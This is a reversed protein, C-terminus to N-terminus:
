SKSDDARGVLSNLLREINVLRELRTEVEGLRCNAEDLRKDVNRNVADFRATVLEEIRKEVEGWQLKCSDGQTRAGADSDGSPPTESGTIRVLPHMITHAYPSSKEAEAEARYRKIYDWPLLENVATECPDCVWTNSCTVCYWCPANVHKQCVACNFPEGDHVTEECPPVAISLSHSTNSSSASSFSASQEPSVGVTDMLPLNVLAAPKGGVVRQPALSPGVAPTVVAAAVKMAVGEEIKVESDAGDPSAPLPVALSLDPKSRDKYVDRAYQFSDGAEQKISFYDKLLLLDRFRVMLHTKPNHSVDTRHPVEAAICELESCADITREYGEQIWLQLVLVYKLCDFTVIDNFLERNSIALERTGYWDFLKFLETMEEFSFTYLMQSYEAKEAEDLLGRTRNFRHTLRFVRRVNTMRTCLYPLPPKKRKIDDVVVKIAFAWLEKPKLERVLPRACMIASEPVKKILFDGNAIARTFTGTMIERDPFYTGTYHIWTGDDTFAREFSVTFTNAKKVASSLTGLLTFDSGDVSTGDGSFETETESETVRNGCKFNICTMAMFPKQNETWHFGYWKGTISMEAELPNKLTPSPESIAAHDTTPAKVTPVPSVRGSPAGEVTEQAAAATSAQGAAASEEPTACAKEPEGHVLIGKLSSPDLKYIVDSSKWVLVDNEMFYQPKVWNEWKYYNKFLGCSLWEFILKLDAVEQHQFQERLDVFRLWAADAVWTVTDMDDWLEDRHLEQTLAIHMKAVHRRLLIALLMFISAEIRDGHLILAVTALADIDYQIKELREKLMSEQAQIYVAFKEELWTEPGDYREISSTLATVHQWCGEIYENVYRTNGPMTISWDTPRAQSFANIESITTFGSSNPDLAQELYRLRKVQLYSTMWSDPLPVTIDAEPDSDEDEDEDHDKRVTPVKSTPRKRQSIETSPPAVLLKSHEVREVLYDRLALVLLRTKASGKWGQDKWVHYIIRHKIRNHPGGKLYNMVRDGQHKIKNGLDKGLDELGMEFRKSYSDLNEQIVSRVDERYEKRLNAILNDNKKREDDFASPLRGARDHSVAVVTTAELSNQFKIMDICKKSDQMVVDGGGNREIWRGMEREQPTLMTRFLHMMTKMDDHIEQITVASRLSLAFTLEERRHTFRAAYSGLEENWIKAKLFKIGLSRKEQVTVANYCEEIDKKMNQCIAALRSLVPEGDPTTRNDDKGLNKLELLVMMVDKIKEFLTNRKKDNDKRETEQDYILKFPLYAAKLFPHVDTLVELTSMLAPVGELITNGIAKVTDNAMVNEYMGVIGESIAKSGVVADAADDIKDLIKEAKSPNTSRNEINKWMEGANDPLEYGAPSVQPSSPTPPLLKTDYGNSDPISVNLQSAAPFKGEISTSKNQPLSLHPMSASHRLETIPVTLSLQSIDSPGAARTSPEDDVAGTTRNRKFIRSFSPM